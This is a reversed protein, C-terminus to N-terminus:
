QSALSPGRTWSPAPARYREIDAKLRDIAREIDVAQAYPSTVVLHGLASHYCATRRVLTDHVMTVIAANERIRVEANKREVPSVGSVYSLSKKRKQDIDLVRTGTEFFQPVQTIDNRVDDMLRAYRSLPSRDHESLFVTADHRLRETKPDYRGIPSPGDGSLLWTAYADCDLPRIPRYLGYEGAVSYWQQRDYPPDILPYALDRLQREDDTLDFKSEKKAGSAYPGVWDHISDSTLYPQVRGFDGNPTGCGGLLSVIAAVLVYRRWILARMMPPPSNQMSRAVGALIL